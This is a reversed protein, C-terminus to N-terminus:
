MASPKPERLEIAGLRVLERLIDLTEDEPMHSIDLMMQVTCTGDILSIVFGARTDLPLRQLDAYSIVLWPVSFPSVVPRVDSEAAAFKRESERAVQSLDEPITTRDHRSM